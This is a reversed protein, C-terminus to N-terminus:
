RSGHRWLCIRVETGLFCAGERRLIGFGPLDGHVSRIDGNGYGTWTRDQPDRFVDAWYETSRTNAMSDARPYDIGDFVQRPGDIHFGGGPSLEYICRGSIRRQGQVVLLCRGWHHGAPIARHRPVAAPAPSSIAAVFTAVLALLLKM